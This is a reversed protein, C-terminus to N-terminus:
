YKKIDARKNQKENSKAINIHHKKDIYINRTKVKM